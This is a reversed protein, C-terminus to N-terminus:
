KGDKLKDLAIKAVAQQAIKKSKGKATGYVTDNIWISIEFEKLHDPGTANEMKYVPISGFDAQTVEQLATKYDSFLEDLNINDYGQDLLKLIIDKVTHIGSEVYIAGM